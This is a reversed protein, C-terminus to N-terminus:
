RTGRARRAALLAAIGAAVALGGLAALWDGPFGTMPLPRAKPPAAATLVGADLSLDERKAPGLTVVPTCGGSPQADSDETDDPGADPKTLKRGGLAFCVQYPGDPLDDFLYKGDPGTKTTGVQKGDGDKLTVPVDPVGPEGPDQLGNGNRDVWVFDGVRNRPEALGADLTPNERGGPGLKVVPACGTGPDADSDKADDGANPKTWQWGAYQAPVQTRDFCVRYSGDPLDDFSYKGDPGTKTTGVQKGDGDTLTVPVDPVGPEGPDQLGNRNTDAWVFDGLRNPPAVLGADLTLNERKGVGLQVVPTCGSAPDADSDKTDDGTNPKTPKYDAVPAPLHAIDFCVQYSGDKLGDFLYKGDPGTKTSALQKGDGDKLVVPVDPVGPEGADQLGDDNTDIWVFDGLRNRPEVLGADLTPN